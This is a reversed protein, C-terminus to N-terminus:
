RENQGTDDHAAVLWEAAFATHEDDAPECVIFAGYGDEHELLLNHKRCVTILEKLFLRVKKSQPKKYSM